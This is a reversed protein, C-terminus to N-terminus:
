LRVAKAEVLEVLTRLVELRTMSTMDVLEDITAHGDLRSLIFGQRHDLGLWRIEHEPVAVHPVRAGLEAPTAPTTDGSLAGLRASYLQLLRERCSEACRKAREDGPRQGLLLEAVRLAGTYDGLAYRDAMEGALDLGPTSPPRSRRSVLELADDRGMAPPTVSRPRAPADSQRIRGWGDDAGAPGSPSAEAGSTVGPTGDLEELDLKLRSTAPEEVLEEDGGPGVPRGDVHFESTDLRLDGEDSVDDGPKAAAAEEGPLALRAGVFQLTM